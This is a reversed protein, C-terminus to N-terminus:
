FIWSHAIIYFWVMIGFGNPKSTMVRFLLFNNFKIRFFIDNELNTHVHILRILSRECVSTLPPRICFPPGKFNKVRTLPARFFIVVSKGNFISNVHKEIPNVRLKWPLFPPGQFKKATHLPAGFIKQSLYKCWAGKCTNTFPGKRWMLARPSDCISTVPIHPCSGLLLPRETVSYIHPRETLVFSFYPTMQHPSYFFPPRKTFVETQLGLFFPTM